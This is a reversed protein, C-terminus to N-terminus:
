SWASNLLLVLDAEQASLGEDKDEGDTPYIDEGTVHDLDTNETTETSVTEAISQSDSDPLMEEVTSYVLSLEFNDFDRFIESYRKTESKTSVKVDTLTLRLMALAHSVPPRGMSPYHEALPLVSQELAQLAALVQLQPPGGPECCQEFLLRLQRLCASVARLKSVTWPIDYYEVSHIGRGVKRPVLTTVTSMGPLHSYNEGPDTPNVQIRRPGLGSNLYLSM